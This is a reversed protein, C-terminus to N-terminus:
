PFHWLFYVATITLTFLHPLLAGCQNLTLPLTFGVRLLVLYSLAESFRSLAARTLKRTPRKLSTTVRTASSHDGGQQLSVSGPKCAL